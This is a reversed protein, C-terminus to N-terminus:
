EFTIDVPIITIQQSYSKRYRFRKLTNEETSVYRHKTIEQNDQVTNYIRPDTNSLQSDPNQEPDQKKKLFM